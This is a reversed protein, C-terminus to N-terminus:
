KLYKFKFETEKSVVSKTHKQNLFFNKIDKSYFNIKKSRKVISFSFDISGNSFIKVIKKKTIKNSSM